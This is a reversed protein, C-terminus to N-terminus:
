LLHTEDRRQALIKRILHNNLNYFPSPFTFSVSTEAVKSVSALDLCHFLTVNKFGFPLDAIEIIKNLYKWLTENHLKSKDNVVSNFTSLKILQSRITRLDRLHENLFPNATKLVEESISKELDNRFKVSIPNMESDTIQHCVIQITKGTAYPTTNLCSLFDNCCKKNLSVKSGDFFHAIKLHNPFQFSKEKMKKLILNMKILTLPKLCVENQYLQNVFATKILSTGIDVKGKCLLSSQCSIKPIFGKISLYDVRSFNNIALMVKTLIIFLHFRKSYKNFIKIQEYETIKNEKKNKRYKRKRESDLLTNYEKYVVFRVDRLTLDLETSKEKLFSQHQVKLRKKREEKTIQAVPILNVEVPVCSFYYRNYRHPKIKNSKLFLGYGRTQTRLLCSDHLDHYSCGFELPLCPSCFKVDDTGYKRVVEAKVEEHCHKVRTSNLKFLSGTKKGCRKCRGPM